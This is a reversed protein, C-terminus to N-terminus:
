AAATPPHLTLRGRHDSPAGAAVALFSRSRLSVEAVRGAPRPFAGEQEALKLLEDVSLGDLDRSSAELMQRQCWGVANIAATGVLGVVGASGPSREPALPASGVPLFLLEDGHHYVQYQKRNDRWSATRVVEFFPRDSSM